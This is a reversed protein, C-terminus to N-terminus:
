VAILPKILRILKDIEQTSNYFHISFRLYKGRYSARVGHEELKKLVAEETPISVITSQLRRQHYKPIWGIKILESRLKESLVKNKQVM